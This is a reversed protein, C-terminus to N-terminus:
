PEAGDITERVRGCLDALSYPKQLFRVGDYLVGHHVIVNATYGSTFLVRVEPRRERIREALTRGNMGPLVVDTVLVDIAGTFGDLLTLAEEGSGCAQVHFGRRTLARVALVRLPEHDEVLLVSGGPDADRVVADAVTAAAGAVAEIVLPVYIKFATGHGVESYVEIRGHNQAVAGFVMPLGLGTGRGVTKTTYFPEFLHARAQADMGVGTDTVALLAFEGPTVDPHTRCYAEDLTVIGTEITLRGGSPMADRANAVLNVLIQECQGRDFRVRVPKPHRVILVGLDEGVLRRLLAEFDVLVENLDLVEPKIVQKRSFALLQQTLRAASTAATIVHGLPEARPDDAPTDLMALETFGRIVTLLNNFDHAVGGALRGVSELKEAQALRAQLRKSESVDVFSGMLRVPRGEADKEAHASFIVDFTSGDRRVAKVEGQVAGREQLERLLPAATERDTLALAHLGIVDAESEYGWARVFAPNASVVVGTGDAFAFPTMSSAIAQGRLRLAEDAARRATIDMVAGVSRVPHRAPGEGEFMTRAQAALWRVEGTDRVIRHDESWQGNGSPDNAVAMSTLVLTRDDPHVFRIYDDITLPARPDVGYIECLRPSWYLRRALHDYEFVGLGAVGMALDLLAERAQLEPLGALRAEADRLRVALDSSGDPPPAPTM